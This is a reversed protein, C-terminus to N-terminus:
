FIHNLGKGGSHSRIPAIVLNQWVQTVLRGVVVPVMMSSMDSHGVHHIHRQGAPGPRINCQAVPRSHGPGCVPTDALRSLEMLSKRIQSPPARSSQLATSTPVVYNAGYPQMTAGCLMSPVRPIASIRAVDRSRNAQQDRQPTMSVHSYQATTSSPLRYTDPPHAPMHQPNLNRAPGDMGTFTILPTRDLELLMQELINQTTQQFM